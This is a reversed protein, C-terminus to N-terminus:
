TDSQQDKKKKLNVELHVYKKFLSIIIIIVVLIGIWNTWPEYTTWFTITKYYMAQFINAPVVTFYLKAAAAINITTQGNKDAQIPHAELYAFYNGPQMTLPLNLKVDVQEVKGPDLHFHQPSFIFWDSKPFLQPQKENFTVLVEYDSPQDGTNIVTLHPFTYLIGPKLKENVVIKGIGVGVGIRALAFTPFLLTLFLFLFLIKKM